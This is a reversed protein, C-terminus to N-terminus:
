KFLHIKGSDNLNKIIIAIAPLIFLGIFGFVKVGVFMCILMVIPHMGVQAGVIKPELINRVVTILMYLTALGLALYVNGRILEIIVWPILIGGTGLIPLIDLLAIIAAITVGNEIRLIFFGLSLELFTLAMLISYAKIFKFLTGVIYHKVDFIIDRVKPSFQRVIFTTIRTYDITFFFSSIISLIVTIFFSPISSFISYISSIVTSSVSSIVSGLSNSFSITIAEIDKVLAPDLRGLISEINSFMNYVAPEISSSYMDPLKLFLEKMSIFLRTGLLILLGVVIAYFLLVVIASLPKRSIHLKKSLFSILPKLISAVAFGIVFPMFWILGYKIAVFILASVTIFYLVNIIFNRKNDIDM